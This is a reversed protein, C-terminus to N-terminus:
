AYGTGVQAGCDEGAASEQKGSVEARLQWVQQLAPLHYSVFDIVIGHVRHHGPEVGETHGDWSTGEKRDVPNVRLLGSKAVRARSLCYTVLSLNM